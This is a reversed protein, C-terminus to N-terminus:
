SGFHRNQNRARGPKKKKVQVFDIAGKAGTRKKMSALFGWNTEVKGGGGKKICCMAGDRKKKKKVKQCKRGGRRGQHTGGGGKYCHIEWSVKTQFESNFSLNSEEEDPQKKREGKGKPDRTEGQFGILISGGEGKQGEQQHGNVKKGDGRENKKKFRV